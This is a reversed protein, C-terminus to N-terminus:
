VGSRKDVVIFHYGFQTQVPGVVEGLKTEPDFIVADFEKVMTGPYFSGLSGGQSASPCTSFQQAVKAFSDKALEGRIKEIDDPNKVLIHRATAKTRDSEKAYAENSFAGGLANEFWNMSLETSSRDGRVSPVITPGASFAMTPYSQVFAFALFLADRMM